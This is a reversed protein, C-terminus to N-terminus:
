KKADYAKVAAAAQTVLKDSQQCRGGHSANCSGNTACDSCEGKKQGQVFKYVCFVFVVAVILLIVIDAASM